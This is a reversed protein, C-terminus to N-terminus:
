VLDSTPLTLHTYSVSVIGNMLFLDLTVVADDYDHEDMLSLHFGRISEDAEMIEGAGKEVGDVDVKIKNM